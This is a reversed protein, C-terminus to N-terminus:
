VEMDLLFIRWYNFAKKLVCFSLFRMVLLGTSNSHQLFNKLSFSFSVLYFWISGSESMVWTKSHGSLPKLTVIFRSRTSFFSLCCMCLSPPIEAVLCFWYSFHFLFALHIQSSFKKLSSMLLSSVDSSLILLNSYIYFLNSETVYQFIICKHYYICVVATGLLM